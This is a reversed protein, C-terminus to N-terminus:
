RKRRETYRQIWGRRLYASEKMEKEERHIAADM